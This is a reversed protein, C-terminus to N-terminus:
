PSSKGGSNQASTTASNFRKNLSTVRRNLNAVEGRLDSVQNDLAGVEKSLTATQKSSSQLAAIQRELKDIRNSLNITANRSESAARQAKGTAAKADGNLTKEAIGLRDVLNSLETQVQAVSEEKAAEDSSDKAGFAVILAVVSIALGLGAIAILAWPQQQQQSGDEM